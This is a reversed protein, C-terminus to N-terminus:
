GNTKRRRYKKPAPKQEDSNGEHCPCKACGGTDACRRHAARAKARTPMDDATLCHGSWGTSAPM